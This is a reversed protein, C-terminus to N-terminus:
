QLDTGDSLFFSRPVTPVNQIDYNLASLLLQVGVIIPLASLMVTGSSAIEGTAISRVWEMAGFIIGFCLLGLGLVTEVSAVSFDRLFYAYFLRKGFNKAHGWVFSGLVRNIKLNSTEDLYRAKMPVDAVVARVLALRFLLDSEFFYGRSVKELPLLRLVRSQIAIFGNTPDFVTWYGTSAKAMFSLVANGVLRVWPMGHLDTLNFFRNGKAYDAKGAVIPKVLISILAPDMQGDGDLKVIVDAGNELAELFGRLTAGGVGLNESNELVKVRQDAFQQRVFDGTREPCCDDVVYIWNVEAGIGKLVDLIQRRVRYCPIVVAIRPSKEEINQVPGSLVM